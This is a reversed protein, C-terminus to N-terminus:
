ECQSEPWILAQPVNSQNSRGTMTRGTTVAEIPLGSKVTLYDCQNLMDQHNMNPDTLIETLREVLLITHMGQQCIDPIHLDGQEIICSSERLANTIRRAYLTPTAHHSDTSKDLLEIVKTAIQEATKSM